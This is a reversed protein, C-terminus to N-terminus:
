QPPLDGNNVCIRASAGGPAAGRLAAGEAALDVCTFGGEQGPATRFEVPRRTIGADSGDAWYLMVGFPFEFTEPAEGGTGFVIDEGGGEPLPELQSMPVVLRHEGCHDGVSVGMREGEQPMYTTVGRREGGTLSIVEGAGTMGLIGTDPVLLLQDPERELAGGLPTYGLALPAPPLPMSFSLGHAMSEFLPYGFLTRGPVPVLPVGSALSSGTGDSYDMVASTHTVLLLDERKIWARLDLGFLAPEGPFCHKRSERGMLSRVKVWEGQDEEVAWALVADPGLSRDPLARLRGVAQGPAAYLTADAWALVAEGEAIPRARADTLWTPDRRETWSAHLEWRLQSMPLGDPGAVPDRADVLSAASQSSDMPLVLTPSSLRVPSRMPGDLRYIGVVVEVTADALPGYAELNAEVVVKYPDRGLQVEYTEKFPLEVQEDVLTTGMPEVVRLDLVVDEVGAVAAPTFSLLSFLSPIVLASGPLDKAVM